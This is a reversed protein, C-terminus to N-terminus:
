SKMGSTQFINAASRKKSQEFNRFIDGFARNVYNKAIMSLKHVISLAVYYKDFM